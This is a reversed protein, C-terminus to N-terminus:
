ASPSQDTSSKINFQGTYAVNPSTGLIFAYDNGATINSPIDWVYTNNGTNAPVNTAIVALPQLANPNGHYLQIQTITDVQPDIWSIVLKQGATYTANALPATITVIQKQQAFVLWSFFAVLVFLTYKFM